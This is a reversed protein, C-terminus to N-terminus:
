AEWTTMTLALQQAHAHLAGLRRLRGLRRRMAAEGEYKGVQAAVLGPAAMATIAAVLLTSVAILLRKM